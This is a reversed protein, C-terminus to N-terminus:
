LRLEIHQKEEGGRGHRLADTALIALWHTWTNGHGVQSRPQICVSGDHGGQQLSVPGSTPSVDVAVQQRRLYSRVRPRVELVCRGLM